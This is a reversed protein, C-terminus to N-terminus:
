KSQAIVAFLLFVCHWLNRETGGYFLALGQSRRNFIKEGKRL